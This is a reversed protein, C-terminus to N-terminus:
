ISFFIKVSVILTELLNNDKRVFRQSLLSLIYYIFFQTPASFAEVREGSPNVSVTGYDALNKAHSLTIIGDDRNEYYDVPIRQYGWLFIGLFILGGILSFLLRNQFLSSLYRVLIRQNSLFKM